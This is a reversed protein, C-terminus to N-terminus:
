RVLFGFLEMMRIRRQCQVDYRHHRLSGLQWSDEYYTSWGGENDEQVDKDLVQGETNEIYFTEDSALEIIFLDLRIELTERELDEVLTALGVDTNCVTTLLFFKYTVRSRKCGTNFSMLVIM